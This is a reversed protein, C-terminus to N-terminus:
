KRCEISFRELDRFASVVEYSKRNIIYEVFNSWRQTEM